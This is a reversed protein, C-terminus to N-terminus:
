IFFILWTQLINIVSLNLGMINWKYCLKETETIRFNGFHAADQTAYLESRFITDPIADVIVGKWDCGTALSALWILTGGPSNAGPSSFPLPTLIGTKSAILDPYTDLFQWCTLRYDFLERWLM